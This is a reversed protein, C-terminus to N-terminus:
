TAPKPAPESFTSSATWAASRLGDHGPRDRGARKATSVAATTDACRPGAARSRARPCWRSHARAASRRERASPASYATRMEPAAATDKRAQQVPPTMPWRAKRWRPRSRRPRRPMRPEDARRRYPVRRRRKPKAAMETNSGRLVVTQSEVPEIPQAQAKSGGFMNGILSAISKPKEPPAEGEKAQPAPQPM